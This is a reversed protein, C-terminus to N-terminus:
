PKSRSTTVVRRLGASLEVLTQNGNKLPVGQAINDLVKAAESDVLDRIQDAIKDAADELVAVAADGAATVAQARLMSEGKKVKGWSLWEADEAVKRVALLQSAM